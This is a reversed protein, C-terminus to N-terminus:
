DFEDDQDYDYGEDVVDHNVHIPPNFQLNDDPTWLRSKYIM